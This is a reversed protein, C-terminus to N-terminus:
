VAWSAWGSVTICWCRFRLFWPEALLVHSSARVRFSRLIYGPCGVNEKFYAVPLQAAVVGAVKVKKGRIQLLSAVSKNNSSEWYGYAFAVDQNKEFRYTIETLRANILYLTESHIIGNSSSSKEELWIM